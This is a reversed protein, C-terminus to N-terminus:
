VGYGESAYWGLAKRVEGGGVAGSTYTVKSMAFGNFHSAACMTYAGMNDFALWDGVRLASPLMAVACVCDISDCTPGWISSERVPESPAVHFSGNLSLVYPYVTQHDFLVCNFAGYVGDNIYDTLDMADAGGFV